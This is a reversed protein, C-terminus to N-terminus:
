TKPTPERTASSPNSADTGEAFEQGGTTTVFPGGKEEEVEADQLQDSQDEASTMTAVAEAGLENALSDGGSKKTRLFARDVGVDEASEKSRARLDAAYKPDLHGTADRRAIPHAPDPKKPTTM